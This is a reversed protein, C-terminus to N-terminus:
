DLIDKLDIYKMYLMVKRIKRAVRKDPKLPSWVRPNPLISIISAVEQKTLASSPKHYYHSAAAEIGYIGEGMEAVNLYIELIRKKSWCIEILFTFYIELAKRLYSRHPFLFVNKAVQQTITSAGRVPKGKHTKNYELAKEIADLDFGFHEEFRQDEAAIAAVPPLSGMEDISVWHKELKVERKSDFAQEVVRILMLPTVPPNVWRYIITTVISLIFFWLLIKLGIKGIKIFITKM